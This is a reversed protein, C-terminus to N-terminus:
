ILTGKRSFLVVAFFFFFCCFNFGARTVLTFFVNQFAACNNENKEPKKKEPLPRPLPLLLPRERWSREDFPGTVTVGCFSVFM